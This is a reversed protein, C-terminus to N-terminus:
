IMTRSKTRVLTIGIGYITSPTFDKRRKEFLTDLDNGLREMVLFRCETGKYNYSGHSIFRPLGLHSIGKLKKWDEVASNLYSVFIILMM